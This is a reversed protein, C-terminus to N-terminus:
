KQFLIHEMNLQFQRSFMILAGNLRLGYKSVGHARPRHSVPLEIARWGQATALLPIFRYMDGYLNLGHVVESRYVKLGCNLDHFSTRLARNALGNFVKSSVVKIFPDQRHQKWGGVMDVSQEELAAVLKPIEQPDDQLDADLTAVVDGTAAAFGAMLAASKGQNRRLEVLRLRPEHQMLSRVVDTTGDTSGDSVVIVEWDPYQTVVPQLAQWFHPLSEAENYAPVVCSLKTM